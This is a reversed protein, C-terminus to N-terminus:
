HGTRYRVALALLDDAPLARGAHRRAADALAGTVGDLPLSRCESLSEDAREAGFPVGQANAECLIGDTVVVLTDGPLLRLVEEEYGRHELAGAPPGGRQLRLVPGGDSPVLFPSALGAICSAVHGNGGLQAVWLAVPQGRGFREAVCTGIQAAIGAASRQPAAVTRFVGEVYAAAIAAGAGDGVVDAVILTHTGDGHTVRACLDGARAPSVRHTVAIEYQRLELPPQNAISRPRARESRELGQLARAGRELTRLRELAVNFPSLAALVQVLDKEGFAGASGPRALNLVGIPGHEGHLPACLSSDPSRDGLGEFREDRVRGQLVVGRGERLVWESISRPRSADAGLLHEPLGAVAEIRLRGTRPDLALVSGRPSAFDHTIRGLAAAALRRLDPVPLAGECLAALTGPAHTMHTPLTFDPAPM